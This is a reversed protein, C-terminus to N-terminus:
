NSYRICRLGIAPSTTAPPGYMHLDWLNNVAPADSQFVPGPGEEVTSLGFYSGGFVYAVVTSGMPPVFAGESWEAVNGILNKLGYGNALRSGVVDPETPDFAGGFGTLVHQNLDSFTNPADNGWPWMEQHNGGTTLMFYTQPDLLRYGNGGWNISNVMYDLSPAGPGGSYTQGYGSIEAATRFVQTRGPDHQLNSNLDIYEIGEFIGNSNNDTFPEAPDWAGNGNVDVFPENVDHIGNYPTEDTFPEADDWTGNGNMDQMGTDFTDSGNTFSGDGNWDGLTESTDQYYAPTLGDMESRANCWKLAQWLTIGTMPRESFADAESSLPLGTYDNAQAWQVVENWKGNSVETRDVQLQDLVGGMYSRQQAYYDSVEVWPGGQMEWYVDWPVTVLDADGQGSVGGDYGSPQDGYTAIVRIKGAETFQQDWDAGADWVATKGGGTMGANVHGSVATCHIPYTLGNDYSFWLEVFATEVPDLTLTYIVNVLKTGSQQSATVGTVAPPAAYAVLGALLFSSVIIIKTKM